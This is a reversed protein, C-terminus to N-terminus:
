TAHDDPIEWKLSWTYRAPPSLPRNLSGVAYFGNVRQFFLFFFCLSFFLVLHFVCCHSLRLITIYAHTCWSNYTAYRKRPDCRRVSPKRRPICIRGQSSRTTHVIFRRIGSEHTQKVPRSVRSGDIFNLYELAYFRLGSQLAREHCKINPM